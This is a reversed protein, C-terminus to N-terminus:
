EKIKVSEQMPMKDVDINLLSTHQQLKVEDQKGRKSPFMNYEQFMKDCSNVVEIFDSKVNSADGQFAENVVYEHKFM